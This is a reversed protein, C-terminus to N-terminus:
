EVIVTGTMYNHIGCIYPHEGAEDYTIEFTDGQAMDDSEEGLARDAISHIADDKNTWTVTTGAAVVLEEPSFAFDVIDVQPAAAPVADEPADGTDSSTTATGGDGAATPGGDDDDGGCAVLGGVLLAVALLTSRTRQM